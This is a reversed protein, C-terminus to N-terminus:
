SKMVSVSKDAGFITYVVTNFLLIQVHEHENYLHMCIIDICTNWSRDICTNNINWVLTWKEERELELRPRFCHFRSSRSEPRLGRPMQSPPRKRPFRCSARFAGPNARVRIPRLRSSPLHCCRRSGWRFRLPLHHTHIKVVWESLVSSPYFYQDFM